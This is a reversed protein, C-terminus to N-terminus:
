NQKLLNLASATLISVGIPLCREDIDFINTHLDRSIGDPIACGLFFMAGPIQRTMYGFDEGGLGFPKQIIKMEPYLEKATHKIIENVNQNNNLAPEGREVEFTYSGGLPEVVKFVQEVENALQDRVEPSYTRLTGTISIEEPIINSATGTQIQGISAVATDLASVKRSIIGYFAQLFSGLMWIPDTGLHPYGGHGGTARIKGHFVDVNAMSYGDNMQITQVPEWPCMHLAIISEVNELIGEQMMRPAGSLGEDDTAEEAPQFILKITGTFLGEKAKKALVKAVGLLIATHADHGCAHMVGPNKSQFGHENKEVIPLADMDARIAVTKGEGNSITAVIGTNAVNTQISVGEIEGLTEAVFQSTKYEQFSLEPNQHLHRRWSVLKDEIAKAEDVLDNLVLM